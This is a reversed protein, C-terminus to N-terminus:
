EYKPSILSLSYLTGDLLFMIRDNGEISALHDPRFEGEPANYQYPVIEGAVSVNVLRDNEGDIAAVILSKSDNSWAVKSISTVPVNLPRIGSDDANAMWVTTAEKGESDRGPATYAIKTGDPSWQAGEVEGTDTVQTVKKTFIDFIYLYNTKKQASRSVLLIQEGNPSWSILPHDINEKVLNAVRSINKNQVDAFVLSQENNPGYYTYAVLIGKPDWIAEDINTGWLRKTQNLLDYRMFDYLYIGDSQKLFVVETDPRWIVKKVDSLTDPTIPEVRVTAQGENIRTRYLTKGHNGLFYVDSKKVFSPDNTVDSSLAIPSPIPKLLVSLTTTKARQFDLKKEYTVYGNSRVKVTHEGPTTTITNGFVTTGDLTIQSTTPSVTIALRPARLVTVYLTFAVAVVLATVLLGLILAKHSKM